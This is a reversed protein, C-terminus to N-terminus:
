SQQFAVLSDLVFIHDVMGFFLLSWLKNKVVMWYPTVSKHTCLDLLYFVINEQYILVLLVIVNTVFNAKQFFSSIWSFYFAFVSTMVTM